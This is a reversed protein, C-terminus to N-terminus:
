NIQVVRYFRQGSGGPASETSPPGADIWQTKTGSAVIPPVAAQWNQMDSSYEIVYMHGPVSAFEITLQGESTFQVRDLQLVPGNPLTPTAATVVTWVFNTSTFPERAADYYELLFTVGAGPDLTQDYEVYPVGDNTGTANYLVVYSPLGVVSVRVATDAVGSLNTFMVSQQYLGTQPNFTIAGFTLNTQAPVNTITMTAANTVSATLVTGPALNSTTSTVNVVNTLAGAVTPMVTIFLVVASNSDFNAASTTVSGAAYVPQSFTGGPFNSVTDSVFEVSPPLTDELQVNAANAVTNTLTV